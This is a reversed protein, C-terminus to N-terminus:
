MEALTRGVIQAMRENAYTTIGDDDFMWLGDPVSDFLRRVLDPDVAASDEGPTMGEIM